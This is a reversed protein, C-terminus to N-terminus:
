KKLSSIVIHSLISFALIQETKNVNLNDFTKTIFDKEKKPEEKKPENKNSDQNDIALDVKFNDNTNIKM